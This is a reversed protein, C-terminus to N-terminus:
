LLLSKLAPQMDTLKNRLANEVLQKLSKRDIFNQGIPLALQNAMVPRDEVKTAFWSVNEHPLAVGLIMGPLGNFSEPGGSVPIKETFFAVAYVSDLVLANARRCVFGAIDRTEDTLKWKIKTVTDKVTYVKDFVNKLVTSQNVSLDTYVQNIQASMRELGLGLDKELNTETAVPTFLLKKDAFTLTSKLILFQPKTQLYLEMQQKGFGDVDKSALKRKMLAYMNIRKEFTIVGNTTFHVYQASASNIVLLLAILQIGIILKM